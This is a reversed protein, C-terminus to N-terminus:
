KFDYRIYETANHHYQAGLSQCIKEHKSNYAFCMRQENSADHVYKPGGDVICKVQPLEYLNCNGWSYTMTQKDKSLTGGAPLEISLLVLSPAFENNEMQYVQEARAIATGLTMAQMFRAKAVAVNYQPLAIAALIGIILVVVLLEILTFGCHGIHLDPEAQCYTYKEFATPRADPMAQGVKECRRAASKYTLAQGSTIYVVEKKSTLNVGSRCITNKEDLRSLKANKM